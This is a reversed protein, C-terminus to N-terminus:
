RSETLPSGRRVIRRAQVEYRESAPDEDTPPHSATSLPSEMRAHQQTHTIASRMDGATAVTGAPPLLRSIPHAGRATSLPVTISVRHPSVQRATLPRPAHSRVRRQQRGIEVIELDDGPVVPGRESGQIVDLRM